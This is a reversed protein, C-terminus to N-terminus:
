GTFNIVTEYAEKLRIFAEADGGKDPHLEKAKNRYAVKLSEKTFGGEIGLMELLNENGSITAASESKYFRKKAPKSYYEGDREFAERNLVFYETM